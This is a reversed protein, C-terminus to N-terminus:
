LIKVLQRPLENDRLTTNFSEVVKQIEEKATIKNTVDFDEEWQMKKDKILARVKM